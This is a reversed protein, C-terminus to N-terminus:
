GKALQQKHWPHERWCGCKNCIMEGTHDLRHQQKKRCGGCWLRLDTSDKM